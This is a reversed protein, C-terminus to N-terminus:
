MIGRYGHPTGRSRQDTPPKAVVKELLLQIAQPVESVSEELEVGIGEPTSRVVLGRVRYYRAKDGVGGVFEVEVMSNKPFISHKLELFMGTLTMDRTRAPAVPINHQCLIVNVSMPIRPSCRHDM